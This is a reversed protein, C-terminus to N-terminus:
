TVEYVTSKQNMIRDIKVLICHLGLGYKLNPNIVGYTSNSSTKLGTKHGIQRGETM